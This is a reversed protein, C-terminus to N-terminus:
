KKCISTGELWSLFRREIVDFMKEVITFLYFKKGFRSEINEGISLWERLSVLTFVAYTIIQLGDQATGYIKGSISDELHYAKTDLKVKLEDLLWFFLFTFLLKYFTFILKGSEVKEGKHRSAIIGTFSDISVLLFYLLLLGVSIGLYNSNFDFLNIGFSTILTFTVMAGHKAYLCKEVFSEHFYIYLQKLSMITFM